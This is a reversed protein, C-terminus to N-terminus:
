YKERVQTIFAEVRRRIATASGQHNNILVSFVMLKNKKTYLYGSLALVGTLSGTKAYIYGSDKKYYSALTGCGGTPFVKKIRDMGIEQQMKLLITVFDQPTFLNFRSLGSGDVWRPQQPLDRLDTKLLTDIIRRDSILGGLKAASVMLLTQEAYFNDSRHMMPRFLSDTRQSHITHMARDAKFPLDKAIIIAKGITDPLLELAAQLGNTIFPVEQQVKKKEAGQTITYTNEAQSRQVFFNKKGNDPSFKVNWNVEPMSYISVSQDFGSTDQEAEENKEQVWRLVNGYVPLPSREVMYDDNYDDWSWGAGLAQEKWNADTIYVPLTTKKLFDIVPNAAFEPHLLSPDATPQLYIAGDQEWYQIGPLSDGLYKMGAYCTVIKTNSAPTFYHDGQYNYLYKNDSVDYLSIGVHAHALASDSLISQTAQKNLIKQTSCSALSLTAVLLFGTNTKM